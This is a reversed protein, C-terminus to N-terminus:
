KGIKNLVEKILKSANFDPKKKIIRDLNMIIDRKNYGLVILAELADKYLSKELLKEEIPMENDDLTTLKGKLEIIIRKILRNEIFINYYM